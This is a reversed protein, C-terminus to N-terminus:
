KLSIVYWTILYETGGACLVELYDVRCLRGCVFAYWLVVGDREDSNSSARQAAKNLSGGPWTARHAAAPVRSCAWSSGHLLSRSGQLLEGAYRMECALPGISGQTATAAGRADGM